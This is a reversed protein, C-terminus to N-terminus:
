GAIRLMESIQKAYFLVWVFHIGCCNKLYSHVQQTDISYLDSKSNKKELDFAYSRRIGTMYTEQFIMEGFCGVCFGSSSISCRRKIEELGLSM